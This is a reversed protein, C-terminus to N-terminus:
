AIEFHDDLRQELRDIRESLDGIRDELAQIREDLAEEEPSAKPEHFPDDCIGSTSCSWM